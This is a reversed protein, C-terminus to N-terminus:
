RARRTKPRKKVKRVKVSTVQRRKRPSTSATKRRRLKLVAAMPDGEEPRAPLDLTGLHQVLADRVLKATPSGLHRAAFELADVLDPGLTVRVVGQGDVQEDAGVVPVTLPVV